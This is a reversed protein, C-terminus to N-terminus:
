KCYSEVVIHLQIGVAISYGAQAEHEGLLPLKRLLVKLALVAVVAAFQKVSMNHNYGKNM